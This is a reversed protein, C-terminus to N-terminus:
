RLFAPIERSFTVADFLHKLARAPKARWSLRAASIRASFAWRLVDAKRFHGYDAYKMMRYARCAAVLEPNSSVSGARKRYIVTSQGSFEFRAGARSLQIWFDVDQGSPLFPDFLVGGQILDRKMLVQSPMVFSEFYFDRPIDPHKKIDAGGIVAGSDFDRLETGSYIVDAQTREATAVLKELHEPLWLDDADLFAIWDGTAAVMGRNRNAGPGGRETARIVRLPFGVKQGIESVVTVTSDSSCDDALVVEQPLLTQSAISQLCDGVYRAANFTPVVVSISMVVSPDFVVRSESNCCAVYAGVRM